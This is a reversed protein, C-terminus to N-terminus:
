GLSPLQNSYTAEQQVSPLPLPFHTMCMYVLPLIHITHRYVKVMVIYDIQHLAYMYKHTAITRIKHYWEKDLEVCVGSMCTGVCRGGSYGCGCVGEEVVGCVCRGGGYRCGCVGVSMILLHFLNSPGLTSM